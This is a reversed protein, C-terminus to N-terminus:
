HKIDSLTDVSCACAAKLVVTQRIFWRLWWCYRCANRGKFICNLWCSERVLLFLFYKELLERKQNWLPQFKSIYYLFLAVLHLASSQAKPLRQCSCAFGSTANPQSMNAKPQAWACRALGEWLNSIWTAAGGEPLRELYSHLNKGKSLWTLLAQWIFLDAQLRM